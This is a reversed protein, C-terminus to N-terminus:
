RAGRVQCAAISGQWAVATLYVYYPRVRGAAECLGCRCGPRHALLESLRREVMALTIPRGDARKFVDLSVL